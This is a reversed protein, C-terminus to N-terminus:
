RSQWCRSRRPTRAGMAPASLTLPSHWVRAWRRPAMCMCSCPPMRVMCSGLVCAGVAQKLDSAEAGEERMKDVRGQEKELEKQYSALEKHLRQASKTKVQLQKVEPPVPAM